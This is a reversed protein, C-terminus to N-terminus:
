ATRERGFIRFQIATIVAVIAILVMAVVSARGFDPTGNGFALQYLKYVFNTTAAAPGGRTLVQIQAFTQLGTITQTVTLFFISPLMIPILVRGALRFGAAGDLQAAEIVEPPVNRIAATLVLFAFGFEYWATSIAIAWVAAVPNQLWEPGQIGVGALLINLIGVSPAFLGAFIASASAASYAFPLSFVVNFFGGALLKQRLLLVAGLACSTALAMGLLAIVISVVVTHLFDPDTFLDIYNGLGVFRTPNGIIDSAYASLQATRFLPRYVFIALLALAPVIFWPGLGNKRRWTRAGPKADM